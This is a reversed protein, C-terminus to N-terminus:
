HHVCRHDAAARTHSARRVAALRSAVLAAAPALLKRLTPPLALLSALRAPAHAPAARVRACNHVASGYQLFPDLPEFDLVGVLTGYGLIVRSFRIPVTGM